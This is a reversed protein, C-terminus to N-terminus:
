ILFQLFGLQQKKKLIFRGQHKSLSGCLTKLMETFATLMWDLQLRNLRAWQGHRQIIFQWLHWLVEAKPIFEKHTLSLSLNPPLKAPKILISVVWGCESMINGVQNHYNNDLAWKVGSFVSQIQVIEWNYIGFSDVCCPSNNKRTRM